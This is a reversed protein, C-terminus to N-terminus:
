GAAPRRGARRRRAPDAPASIPVATLLAITDPLSAAARASTSRCKPLMVTSFAIFDPGILGLGSIQFKAGASANTSNPL